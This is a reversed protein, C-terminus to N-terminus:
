RAMRYREVHQIAKRMHKKVNWITMGLKAAVENYTFGDVRSLLFIELTRPKLKSLIAEWAALEDRSAIIQHQDVGVEVDLGEILPVARQALRQAGSEAHDRALNTAIRHLYAQPIALERSPAVRMFRLMTEHALDQADEASNLRRRFFRVLWPFETRYITELETECDLPMGGGATGNSLGFKSM